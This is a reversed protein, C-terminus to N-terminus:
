LVALLTVSSAHVVYACVVIEAQSLQPLLHCKLPAEFPCPIALCLSPSPCGLCLSSCFLYCPLKAVHPTSLPLLTTKLPLRGAQPRAGLMHAHGARPCLGQLLLLM